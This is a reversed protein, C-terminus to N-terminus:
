GKFHRIAHKSGKGNNSVLTSYTDSGPAVENVFGSTEFEFIVDQYSM